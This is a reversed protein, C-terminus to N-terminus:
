LGELEVKLKDILEQSAANLGRKTLQIVAEEVTGLKFSTQYLKIKNLLDSSLGIEITECEIKKEVKKKEYWEPIALCRGEETERFILRPKNGKDLRVNRELVQSLSQIPDKASSPVVMQRDQALQALTKAKLPKKYEDLLQFAAQQITMTKEMM